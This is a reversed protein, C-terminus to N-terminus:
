PGVSILERSRMANRGCVLLSTVHGASSDLSDEPSNDSKCHLFSARPLHCILETYNPLFHANLDM